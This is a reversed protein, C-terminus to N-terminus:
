ARAAGSVIRKIVRWGAMMLAISIIVGGIAVGTELLETSMINVNDDLYCAVESRLIKDGDGLTVGPVTTATVVLGGSVVQGVYYCTM